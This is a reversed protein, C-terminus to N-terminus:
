ARDPTPPKKQKQFWEPHQSAEVIPQDDAASAQLRKILNPGKLLSVLPRPHRKRQLVQQSQSKEKDEERPGGTQDLLPNKMKIRMM